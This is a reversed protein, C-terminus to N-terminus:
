VLVAVDTALQCTNKYLLQGADVVPVLVQSLPASTDVVNTRKIGTMCTSYAVAGKLHDAEVHLRSIASVELMIKWHCLAPCLVLCM